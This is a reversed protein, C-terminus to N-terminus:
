ATAGGGGQKRRYVAKLVEYSLLTIGFLPAQVLMRPVLGKAFAGPGEERYIKTFADAIGRYRDSGGVVQLRTKVVDCPTVTGASLSGALAGATFLGVISEDGNFATKLNAFLPFFIFSFPVDRLWCAATGRYLGRLGLQGITEKASLKPGGSEGQLQMRLKVIEM